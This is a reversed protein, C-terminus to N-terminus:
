SEPNANRFVETIGSSMEAWKGAPCKKASFHAARRVPCKCLHCRGAATLHECALCANIRAIWQADNVFANQGPKRKWLRVATQLMVGFFERAIERLTLAGADDATKRFRPKTKAESSTGNQM